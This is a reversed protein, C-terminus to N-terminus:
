VTLDNELKMDIASRVLKQVVSILTAVILPACIIAFWIVIVGPADDLEAFVYMLPMALAFLASIAIASYKIKSLAVISSESFATNADVYQLLTFAQFLAFVFPIVSAYIGTIGPYFVNQLIKPWQAQDVFWIHPFSFAWAALAAAGILVIIAYQSCIQM